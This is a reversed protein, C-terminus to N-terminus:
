GRFRGIVRYLVPDEDGYPSLGDSEQDSLVDFGFRGELATRFEAANQFRRYHNGFTKKRKEDEDTRFEAAFMDGERAVSQIHSLLNEQVDAKISHLFFRLYFLAAGEHQDRFKRLATGLAEADSVDCVEFAAHDAVGLQKARASAGEVAVGSQDIGVVNRGVQAFACSDRGDGCGIDIVAEPLGELKSVEDFFTSGDTNTHRAYFNSWYIRDRQPVTLVGDDAVDTRAHWWHFGPKPLRWDDGYLHAVLPEPNKPRLVEGGPFDVLETGQYDDATYTSTGAVGWPFRLMGEEDFYLHFLDIRYSRDEADHVHLVRQRLDVELGADLLALAIAVLEEAAEPGTHHKSIFASDFDADHSIYGGERVSGLLTGYIIFVDHGFRDAVVERVKAYLASVRRQWEEDLRKSLVIHGGQTLTFGDDLRQQLLALDYKGSKSARLFTGHGTIPLAQGDYTVSLRDGKSLYAWMQKVQFSFAREEYGNRVNRRGDARGAAVGSGVGRQHKAKEERASPPAEDEKAVRMGALAGGSTPYTSSLEISGVHLTVPAPPTNVPVMVWGSIQTEGVREVIGVVQASPKTVRAARGQVGWVASRAQRLRVRSSEPIKDIVRRRLAAM